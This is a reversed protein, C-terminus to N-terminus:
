VIEKEESLRYIDELHLTESDSRSSISSSNSYSSDSSHSSAISRLYHLRIKKRCIAFYYSTCIVCCTTFISTAISIAIIYQLANPNNIDPYVSLTTQYTPAYTPADFTSAYTSAYTPAYTPAIQIYETPEHTPINLLLLREVYYNYKEIQDSTM